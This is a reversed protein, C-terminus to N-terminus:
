LPAQRGIKRGNEQFWTKQGSVVVFCFSTAYTHGQTKEEL